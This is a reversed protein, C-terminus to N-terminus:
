STEIVSIGGGNITGNVKSKGWDGSFGDVKDNIREATLDLNFGEKSPLQLRINGSSAELKLYKNVHIMQANLSGSNTIADLACDMEKLDIGGGSTGTVLEGKIRRGEIGGGSTHATIKGELDDLRLGGGSTQLRITGSCKRADIGGGNTVMDIDDSSNSIQIGGGSTRGHIVGSLADIQLGGGSTSFTENGKLHDLAIGGGSTQLDTSVQEPVYIKFSINIGNNDNWNYNRHKNKVIASLEHGNVVINLDYNEDLRKKIEEKSLERNNNGRIYVEVRPSQGSEGSVQIGGASTNVVVKSIADGSLSKTLYPTQNNNQAFATVSQCAAIVLLTFLKKV